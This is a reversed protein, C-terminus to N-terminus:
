YMGDALSREEGEERQFLMFRADMDKTKAGFFLWIEKKIFLM